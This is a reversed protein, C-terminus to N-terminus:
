KGGLRILPAGPYDFRTVASTGDFRVAIYWCGTAHHPTFKETVTGVSGAENLITRRTLRVRDGPSLTYPSQM